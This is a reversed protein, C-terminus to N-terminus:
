PRGWAAQLSTAPSAGVFGGRVAAAAPFRDRKPVGRGCHKRAAAVVRSPLVVIAIVAVKRGPAPVRVGSPSLRSLVMAPIRSAAPAILILLLATAVGPPVGVG